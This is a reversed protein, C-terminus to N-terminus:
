ENRWEGFSSLKKAVLFPQLQATLQGLFHQILQQLIAPDPLGPIQPLTFNFNPTGTGQLTTVYFYTDTRSISEVFRTRLEVTVPNQNCHHLEAQMDFPRRSQLETAYEEYLDWMLEEIGLDEAKTVPLRLDDIMEKRCIFHTHAYYSVTLLSVLRDIQKKNHGSKTLKLMKEIILRTRFYVRNISGLAEPQVRDILKTLAEHGYAPFKSGLTGRVFEIFANINEVGFGLIPANESPGTKVHITPDTPSLQARSGAILRDCGLAIMTAASHCIYPVVAYLKKCHSRLLNVLPWPVDIDGGHSVLYLAIIQHQDKVGLHQELIKLCDRSLPADVNPRDSTLFCIVKAKLTEELQTIKARREVKGM